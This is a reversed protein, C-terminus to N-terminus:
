STTMVSTRITFLLLAPLRLKNAKDGKSVQIEYSPHLSLNKDRAKLSYILSKYNIKM